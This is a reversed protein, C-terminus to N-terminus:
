LKEVLGNLDKISYYATDGTVLVPLTFTGGEFGNEFMATQMATQAKKNIGIDMYKYAIGKEDLMKKTQACRPCGKQGYLIIDSTVEKVPPEDSSMPKDLYKDPVPGDDPDIPASFSGIKSSSSQVVIQHVKEEAAHQPATAVVSDVVRSTYTTNYKWKKLHDPTLVVLKRREGPEITDVIPMLRDIEVHELSLELRVEQFDETKNIAYILTRHGEEVKDLLIDEQAFLFGVVLVLFALVVLSKSYKIM